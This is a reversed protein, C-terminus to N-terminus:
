PEILCHRMKFPFTYFFDSVFHFLNLVDVQIRSINYDLLMTKWKQKLDCEQNRYTTEQVRLCVPFSFLNYTNFDVGM